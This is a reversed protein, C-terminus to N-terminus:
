CRIFIIISVAVIGIIWAELTLYNNLFKIIIIFLATYCVVFSLGIHDKYKSYLKFYSFVWIIILIFQLNISLLIALWLYM